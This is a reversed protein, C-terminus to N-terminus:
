RDRYPSSSRPAAAGAEMRVDAVAQGGREAMAAALAATVGDRATHSAGARAHLEDDLVVVIRHGHMPGQTGEWALVDSEVVVAGRELMERALADGLAGLQMLARARLHEDLARETM